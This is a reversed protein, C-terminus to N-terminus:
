SIFVFKNKQWLGKLLIRSKKKYLVLFVFNCNFYLQIQVPHGFSHDTPMQDIEMIYRIPFKSEAHNEM